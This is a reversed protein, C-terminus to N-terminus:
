CEAFKKRAVNVPLDIRLGQIDGIQIDRVASRAVHNKYRGLVVANIREVSVPLASGRDPLAAEYICRVAGGRRLARSDRLRVNSRLDADSTSRRNFSGAFRKVNDRLRHFVTGVDM